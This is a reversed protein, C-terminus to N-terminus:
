DGDFRALWRQTFADHGDSMQDEIAPDYIMVDSYPARIPKLVRGLAVYHKPPVRRHTM